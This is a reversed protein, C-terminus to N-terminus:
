KEFIITNNEVMKVIEKITFDILSCKVENKINNYKRIIHSILNNYAENDSENMSRLDVEQFTLVIRILRYLRMTKSFTFTTKKM